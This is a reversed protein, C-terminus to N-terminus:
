RYYERRAGRDDVIVVRERTSQVSVSSVRNEGRSLSAGRVYGNGISRRDSSRSRIHSPRPVSPRGTAVLDDPQVSGSSQRPTRQEIVVLRRSEAPLLQSTRSASPEITHSHYSAQPNPQISLRPVPSADHNYSAVHVSLPRRATPVLNIPRAPVLVEPEPTSKCSILCM